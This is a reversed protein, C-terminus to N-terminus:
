LAHFTLVFLLRLSQLPKFHGAVGSIITIIDVTVVHAFDCM